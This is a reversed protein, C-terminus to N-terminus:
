SDSASETYLPLRSLIFYEQNGAPGLLRSPVEKEVALGREELYERIKRVAAFRKEEERVVGGKGVEKRSLEFQPKVLPLLIGGDKMFPLAPPIVLTLSIFSVDITVLDVKEPILDKAAYRFNCGELVVVRPDGRLSYDLLNKGVDVSFVRAAGHKLLCDTFGGTSAGVDLCFFGEVSLHLDELTGALKEGGRSVYQREKGKIEVGLDGSVLSGAKDVVEGEVRVRGAM